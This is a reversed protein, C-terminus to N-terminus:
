LFDIFLSILPELVLTVFNFLNSVEFFLLKAPSHFLLVDNSIM